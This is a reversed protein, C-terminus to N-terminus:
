ENEFGIYGVEKKMANYAAIRLKDEYMEFVGFEHLMGVIENYYIYNAPDNLLEVVGDIV